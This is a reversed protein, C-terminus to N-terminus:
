GTGIIGAGIAVSIFRRLDCDRAVLRGVLDGRRVRRPGISIPLVQPYMVDDHEQDPDINTSVSAFKTTEIFLCGV